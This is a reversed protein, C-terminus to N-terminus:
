MVEYNETDGKLVALLLCLPEKKHIREEMKKIRKQEPSVMDMGGVVVYGKMVVLM